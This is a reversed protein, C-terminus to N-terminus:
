VETWEKAIRNKKVSLGYPITMGRKVLVDEYHTLHAQLKLALDLAEFYLEENKEDLFFKAFFNAQSLMISLSDEQSAVAPFKRGPLHVIASNSGHSLISASTQDNGKM